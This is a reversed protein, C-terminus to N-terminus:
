PINDMETYIDDYIQQVNYPMVEEIYFAPYSYYFGNHYLWHNVLTDFDMHIFEECIQFGNEIRQNIGVIYIMAGANYLKRATRKQIREYKYHGHYETQRKM